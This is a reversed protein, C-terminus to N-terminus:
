FCILVVNKTVTLTMCGHIRAEPEQDDLLKAASTTVLVCGYLSAFSFHFLVVRTKVAENRALQLRICYAKRDEFNSHFTGYKLIM